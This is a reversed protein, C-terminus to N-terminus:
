LVHSDLKSLNLKFAPVMKAHKRCVEDCRLGHWDFYGLKTFCKPCNLMGKMQKSITSTMWELPQVFLGSCTQLNDFPELLVTDSFLFSRCKKCKFICKLSNPYFPKLRQFYTSFLKLIFDQKSPGYNFLSLTVKKQFSKLVILRYNINTQDLSNGMEQYVQLQFKFGYNPEIIPRKSKVFNYSEEKSYGYKKMLHAIVITASRSVGAICHVLVPSQSKVAKSIFQSAEDFYSILDENPIDEAEIFLYDQLSNRHINDKSVTIIHKFDSCAASLKNGLYLYDDILQYDNSSM